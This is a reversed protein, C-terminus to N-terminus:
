GRIKDGKETGVHKVKSVDRWSCTVESIDRSRQCLGEKGLRSNITGWIEVYRLQKSYRSTTPLWKRLNCWCRIKSVFDSSPSMHYTNWGTMQQWGKWLDALDHLPTTAIEFTLVRGTWTQHSSSWLTCTALQLNSPKQPNHDEKIRFRDSKVDFRNYSDPQFRHIMLKVVYCSIAVYMDLLLSWLNIQYDCVKRYVLHYFDCSVRSVPEARLRQHLRLTPWILKSIIWCIIDSHQIKLIDFSKYWIVRSTLHNLIM